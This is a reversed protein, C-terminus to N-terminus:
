LLIKFNCKFATDHFHLYAFMIGNNNIDVNIDINFQIRIHLCTHM